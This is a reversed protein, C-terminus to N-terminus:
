GEMAGAKELAGGHTIKALFLEGSESMGFNGGMNPKDSAAMVHGVGMKKLYEDIALTDTGAIYKKYFDQLDLGTIKEIKGMLKNDKFTKKKKKNKNSTM